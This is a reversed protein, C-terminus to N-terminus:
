YNSIEIRVLLWLIYILCICLCMYRPGIISHSNFFVNCHFKTTQPGRDVVSFFIRVMLKSSETLLYMLGEVGHQVTEPDVKLKELFFLDIM